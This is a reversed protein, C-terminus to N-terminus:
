PRFTDIHVVHKLMSPTQIKTTNETPTMLDENHFTIKVLVVSLMESDVEFYVSMVLPGFPVLIEVYNQEGFVINMGSALRRKEMEYRLLRSGM